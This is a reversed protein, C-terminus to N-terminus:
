MQLNDEDKEFESRMMSDAMLGEMDLDLPAGQITAPVPRGRRPQRQTATQWCTVFMKEPWLVGLRDGVTRVM